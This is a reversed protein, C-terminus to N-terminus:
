LVKRRIRRIDIAANGSFAENLLQGSFQGYLLLPEEDLRSLHTKYSLTEVTCKHKSPNIVEYESPSHICITMPM